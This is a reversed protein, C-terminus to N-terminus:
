IRHFIGPLDWIHICLLNHVLSIHTIDPPVPTDLVPVMHLVETTISMIRLKYVSYPAGPPFRHGLKMEGCVFQVSLITDVMLFGEDDVSPKKWDMGVTGGAYVKTLSPDASELERVAESSEARALIRLRYRGRSDETPTETWLRDRRASSGTVRFKAVSASTFEGIM